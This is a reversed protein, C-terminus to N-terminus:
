VTKIIRQCSGLIQREKLKRQNKGQIESPHSLVRNPLNKESQSIIIQKHRLIRSSKVHGMRWPLNKNTCIGNPQISLNWTSWRELGTTDLRVGWKTSFLLM